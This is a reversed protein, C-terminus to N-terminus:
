LIWIFIRTHVHIHTCTHIFGSITKRTSNYAENYGRIRRKSKELPKSFCGCSGELQWIHRALKPNQAHGASLRERERYIYIHIYM